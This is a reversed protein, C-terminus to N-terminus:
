EEGTFLLDLDAGILGAAFDDVTSHRLTGDWTRAIEHNESATPIPAGRILPSATQYYNVHRLLLRDDVPPASTHALFSRAHGGVPQDLTFISATTGTVLELTGKKMADVTVLLDVRHADGRTLQDAVRAAAAGGYGYGVIGVRRRSGARQASRLQDAIWSLAKEEGDSAFLAASCDSHLARERLIRALPSYRWPRRATRGCFAVLIPGAPEVRLIREDEDVPPSEDEAPVRRLDEAV